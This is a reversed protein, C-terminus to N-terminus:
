ADWRGVSLDQPRVVMCLDGSASRVMAIRQRSGDRAQRLGGGLGDVVIAVTERVVGSATSFIVSRSAHVSAPRILGAMLMPLVRSFVVAQSVPQPLGRM